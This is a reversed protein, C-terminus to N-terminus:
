PYIGHALFKMYAKTVWKPFKAPKDGDRAYRMSLYHRAGMMMYALVELERPECEPLEGAKRARELLRTLGRGVTERHQRFSEPAFVEAEYMIRYYEPHEELFTFYAHFRREEREAETKGDASRQQIYDLMFRGVAPLLQDLLDQQSAFYNYFTGQAIQARATILSVMAGQYGHEGIVDAAARLLAARTQQGKEARTPKGVKVPRKLPKSSQLPLPQKHTASKKSTTTM